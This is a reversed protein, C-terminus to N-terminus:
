LLETIGLHKEISADLSGLERTDPARCPAYWGGHYCHRFCRDSISAKVRDVWEPRQVPAESRRNAEAVLSRAKEDSVTTRLAQVEPTGFSSREILTAAALVEADHAALARDFRADYETALDAMSVGTLYADHNRCNYAVYEERIEDLGPTYGDTESM